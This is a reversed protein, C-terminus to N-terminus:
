ESAVRSKAGQFRRWRALPSGSRSTSVAGQNMTTDIRLGSNARNKKMWSCMSRKRVGSLRRGPGQHYKRGISTAPRSGQVPTNRHRSLALQRSAAISEPPKEHARKQRIQDANMRTKKLMEFDFSGDYM